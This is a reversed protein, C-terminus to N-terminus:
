RKLLSPLAREEEKSEQPQRQARELRRRLVEREATDGPVPADEERAVEAAAQKTSRHM